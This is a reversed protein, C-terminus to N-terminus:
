EFFVDWLLMSLLTIKARNPQEHLSDTRYCNLYSSHLHFQEGQIHLDNHKFFQCQFTMLFFTQVLLCDYSYTKSLHM